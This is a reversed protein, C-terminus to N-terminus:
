KANENQKENIKDVHGHVQDLSPWNEENCAAEEYGRVQDVSPWNQSTVADDAYNRADDKTPWSQNSCVKGTTGDVNKSGKFTVAMSEFDCYGVFVYKLQKHVNTFTM